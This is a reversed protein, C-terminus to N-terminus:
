IWIKGKPYIKQSFNFVENKANYLYILIKYINNIHM